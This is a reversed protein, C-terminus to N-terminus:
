SSMVKLNWLKVSVITTLPLLWTNKGYIAKTAHSFVNPLNEEVMRFVRTCYGGAEKFGAQCVCVYSGITNVCITNPRVCRHRMEACEDVDVCASSDPNYRMGVEPCKCSVNLRGKILDNFNENHNLSLQCGKLKQKVCINRDDWDCTHQILQTRNCCPDPCFSFLACRFPKDDLYDMAFVDEDLRVSRNFHRKVHVAFGKTYGIFWRGEVTCYPLYRLLPLQLLTMWCMFYSATLGFRFYEEMDTFPKLLLSKHINHLWRWQEIASKEAFIDPNGYYSLDFVSNIVKVCAFFSRRCHPELTFHLNDLPPTPFTHTPISSNTRTDRAIKKFFRVYFAARGAQAMIQKMYPKTAEKMTEDYDQRIQEALPGRKFTHTRKWAERNKKWAKMIKEQISSKIKIKCNAGNLRDDFWINALLVILVLYKM